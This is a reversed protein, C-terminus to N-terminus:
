AAAYEIMGRINRGAHMDRYGANIEDLSYTTTVLEDLKLQGNEYMALLRPIDASPAMSGYLCGQLRKEYMALM